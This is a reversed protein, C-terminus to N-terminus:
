DTEQEGSGSVLEKRGGGDEHFEEQYLKRWILLFRRSNHLTCSRAGLIIGNPKSLYTFCHISRSIKKRPTLPNRFTQYNHFASHALSTLNRHTSTTFFFFQPFESLFSFCLVRTSSDRVASEWISKNMSSSKDRCM